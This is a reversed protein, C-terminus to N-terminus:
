LRGLEETLEAASTVQRELLLDWLDLCDQHVIQHSSSRWTDALLRLLLPVLLHVGPAFQYRPSTAVLDNAFTRGVQLLCPAFDVLPARHKELKWLLPSPDSRFALSAAFAVLFPDGPVFLEFDSQSFGGMVRQQVERDPDNALEQLIGKAVTHHARNRLFIGAVEAIGQRQAPTGALCRAFFSEVEGDSVGHFHAAGVWFAGERAVQVRDSDIMREILSRLRGLDHLFAYQLFDKAEGTALVREDPECAALFWSIAQQREIKLVPLCAAVAAVRVAPHPDAVLFELAPRLVCLKEPQEFLLRRIAYGASGRTCNLANTSLHDDEANGDSGETSVGFYGPRPDPHQRAIEVIHLLVEDTWPYDSQAQVVNCFGMAFDDGRVAPLALFAEITERSAPEWQNEEEPGPPRRTGSSGLGGLIAGVFHRDATTPLRLGLRAFREPHLSAMDRVASAYSSVSSEEIYGQGISRSPRRPQRIRGSTMLRLWSRDSLRKLIEPRSIPSRVLGGGPQGWGTFFVPAVGGFKRDLEQAARRATASSRGADLHKLLHYPTAGNISPRALCGLGRVFGIDGESPRYRMILLEHRERCHEALDPEKFGLLFRELRDFCGASCCVSLRAVARGSLHWPNDYASFRLRLRTPEAMMWELALDAVEPLLLDEGLADLLALQAPMPLPESHLVAALSVAGGQILRVAIGRLVQFLTTLSTSHLGSTEITLADQISQRTGARVQDLSHGLSRLGSRLDEEDIGALPLAGISPWHADMLGFKRGGRADREHQAAITTVLLEVFRMFSASALGNWDVLDGTLLGRRAFRLRLAFLADSDKAARTQLVRVCREDWGGGLQEYPSLLRAVRDGCARAVRRLVGVMAECRTADQGALWAAPLGRDDVAEFWSASSGITEELAHPRWREDDLLQLVLDIEPSWPDQVQGLSELVLQKMHFRVEPAELLERVEALYRDPGEDRLLGLVLRLRERRFLTQRARSDLWSRVTAAGRDIEAMARVAVLYDLYSQHCFSVKGDGVQLIHLSCFGEEEEQSAELIRVPAALVEDREMFDVLRDVIREARDRAVGHAPLADYRSRWFARLLGRSTSFRPSAGTQALIEGWLSLHFFNTLLSQETPRLNEYVGGLSTVLGAVDSVALDGVVIAVASQAEGARWAKIQPDHELDYTRCCVVVRISRLELAERILERCVEWTEASHVSTWRLADLQDLLLFGRRERAMAQLCLAPSGPLDLAEGFHRTSAEPAQRDLRLPLYPIGEQDLREALDYLVGSKGSGAIGHLVVIRSDTQELAALTQDTEQRRLLRGGVLLHRFSDRFRGQLRELIPALRPDQALNTLPLGRGRLFTAIQDLHIRQRLRDRSLRVLADIVGDPDGSVWRRAESRLQRLEEESDQFLHIQTRSLLDHALNLDSPDEPQLRLYRCFLEFAHRRRRVPQLQQERFSQPDRSDRASRTLAELEPAPLGSVFCFRHEPSSTLCDKLHGLVGEGALDAISWESSFAKTAKSQQAERIGTPLEIWFDVGAAERGAPEREFSCIEGAIIHLLQRAAWRDEYTGGVTHAHGGPEM